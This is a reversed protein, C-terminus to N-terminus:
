AFQEAKEQCESRRRKTIKPSHDLEPGAVVIEMQSDRKLTPREFPSSFVHCLTPQCVAAVESNLQDLMAEPIMEQALTRYRNAAEELAEQGETEEYGFYPNHHLYAGFVNVCDETYKRTDLIHAHWMADVPETPALRATPDIASCLIFIKYFYEVSDLYDLSREHPEKASTAMKFKIPELDIAAVKRAIEFNSPTEFKKPLKIIFQKKM